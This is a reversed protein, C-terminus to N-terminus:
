EKKKESSKGEKETSTSSSSSTSKGEETNGGSQEISGVPENAKNEAIQDAASLFVEVDQLDRQVLKTRRAISDMEHERFDVPVFGRYYKEKFLRRVLASSDEIQILAQDGRFEFMDVPLLCDGAMTVRSAQVADDELACSATPIPVMDHLVNHSKGFMHRLNPHLASM